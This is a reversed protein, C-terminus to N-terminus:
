WIASPAVESVGKEVRVTENADFRVIRGAEVDFTIGFFRAGGDCWIAIGILGSWRSEGAPRSTVNAFLYRRGGAFFGSVDSSFIWKGGGESWGRSKLYPILQGEL